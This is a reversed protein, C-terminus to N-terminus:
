RLNSAGARRLDFYTGDVADELHRWACGLM